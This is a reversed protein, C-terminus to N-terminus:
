LVSVLVHEIDINDAEELFRQGVFLCPPRVYVPGSLAVLPFSSVIILPFLYRLVAGMEVLPEQM